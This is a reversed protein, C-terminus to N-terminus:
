STYLTCSGTLSVRDFLGSQKHYKHSICNCVRTFDKNLTGATKWVSRRGERRARLETRSFPPNQALGFRPNKRNSNGYTNSWRSISLGMKEEGVYLTFPFHSVRWSLCFWVQRQLPSLTHGTLWINTKVYNGKNIKKKEYKCLYIKFNRHLVLLSLDKLSYHITIYMRTIIPNDIISKTRHM